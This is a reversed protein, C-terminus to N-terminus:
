MQESKRQQYTRELVWWEEESKGCYDWYESYDPFVAAPARLKLCELLPELQNPNRLSTIQVQRFKDIIYLNIVRIRQTRGSSHYTKIENQGFVARINSIATAEDGLVWEKGVAVRDFWQGNELIDKDVKSFLWKVDQTENEYSLQVCISKALKSKKPFLVDRVSTDTEYVTAIGAGVGVIGAVAFVTYDELKWVSKDQKLQYFFLGLCAASIMLFLAAWVLGTLRMRTRKLCYSELKNKKVKM